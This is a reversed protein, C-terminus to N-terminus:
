VIQENCRLCYNMNMKLTQTNTKKSRKTKAENWKNTELTREVVVVVVFITSIIRWEFVQWCTMVVVIFEIRKKQQQRTRSFISFQECSGCVYTHANVFTNPITCPFFIIQRYKNKGCEGSLYISLVCM